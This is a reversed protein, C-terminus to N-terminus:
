YVQNMWCKNDQACRPLVVGGAKIGSQTNGIAPDPNM